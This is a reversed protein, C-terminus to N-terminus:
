EDGLLERLKHRLQKFGCPRVMVAANPRPAVRRAWEAQEESLIVIGALPHNKAQAEGLVRDFVLLGDEGVTGVDVVLADFPQQRFRDLARAPDSALLPRFGLRKFGERMGDQLREDCEALFITRVAPKGGAATNGGGIERRAAKVADLLQSPTQYRRRPDFALMTECLTIISAPATFKTGSATQEGLRLTKVDQFRQPRMRAHRDRTMELPPRGLLMEYFVCGLFFIDSRVDGAPVGTAKELGAYDVTRDVQDKETGIQAFMQALGFDVLKAVEGSSSVLINTLKMDRHTIGRSYAYALGSACDELLRLSEHVSLNKRLELIERLNGGEVFEMIIYYQGSQGEQSIAMVEVINPHKLSLGVKGERIFLDIRLRDESWRRRLVKVAVVRGTNPDEARFVRGFSGSSVKYRITYGGYFYGDVDGKLAKSIQFNTLISQRELVRTIFILDPEQKGTEVRAEELAERWKLESILGLKVLQQGFTTTDWNEM